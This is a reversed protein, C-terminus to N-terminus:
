RREEGTRSALGAGSRPVTTGYLARHWRYATARCVPWRRLIDRVSVPAHQARAWLVVDVYPLLPVASPPISVGEGEFADVLALAWAFTLAPPVRTPVPENSM